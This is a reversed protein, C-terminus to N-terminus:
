REAYDREWMKKLVSRDTKGRANKPLEDVLIVRKPTKFDPLLEACRAAIEEETAQEEPRPAVFAVIEEGYVADPAGIAAAEAVEPLSVLANDIELPSINVGGQIIVDRTRGTVTPFGDEDFCGLDGTRLRRGRIAGELKFRLARPPQGVTKM